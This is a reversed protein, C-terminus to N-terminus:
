SFDKCELPAFVVCGDRDFGMCIIGYLKENTLLFCSLFLFIKYQLM